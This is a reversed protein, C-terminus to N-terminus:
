KPCSNWFLPKGKPNFFGFSARLRLICVDSFPNPLVTPQCGPPDIDVTVTYPTWGQGEEITILLFQGDQSIGQIDIPGSAKTAAGIPWGPIDEMFWSPSNPDYVPVENYLYPMVDFDQILQCRLSSPAPPPAAPIPIPSPIPSPVPNNVIDQTIVCNSECYVSGDELVIYRVEGMPTPSTTPLPIVISPQTSEVDARSIIRCSIFLISAAIFTVVFVLFYVLKEALKKGHFYVKSEDLEGKKLSHIYGDPDDFNNFDDFDDYPQQMKGM